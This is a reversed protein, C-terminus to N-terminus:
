LPKTTAIVLIPNDDELLGEKLQKLIENDSESSLIRGPMVYGYLKDGDGSVHLFPMSGDIDYDLPENWIKKGYIYKGSEPSYAILLRAQGNEGLPEYASVLLYDNTGVVSFVSVHRQAGFSQFDNNKEELLKVFAMRRETDEKGFDLTLTRELGEENMVDIEHTMDNLCYARGNGSSALASAPSAVEEPKIENSIYQYPTITGGKLDYVYFSPYANDKVYGNPMTYGSYLVVKDGGIYDLEQAWFDFKKSELRKGEYDYILVSRAYADLVFLRRGKKDVAADYMKAYENPGKGQGAVKKIFRGDGDFLLLSQNDKDVVLLNGDLDLVRNIYKILSESTTELKVYKIDSFLDSMKLNKEPQTIDVVISGESEKVSSTEKCGCLAFLATSLALILKKM